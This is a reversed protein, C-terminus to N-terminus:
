STRWWSRFTGHYVTKSSRPKLTLPLLRVGEACGRIWRQLMIGFVGNLIDFAYGVDDVLDFEQRHRWKIVAYAAGLVARDVTGRLQLSVCHAAHRGDVDDNLASM